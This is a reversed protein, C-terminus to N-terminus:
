NVGKMSHIWRPSSPRYTTLRSRSGSNSQTGALREEAGPPATFLSAVHERYTIVVTVALGERQDRICQDSEVGQEEEDFHAAAISEDHLPGEHWAAENGIWERISRSEEARHEHMG